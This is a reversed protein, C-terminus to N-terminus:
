NCASSLFEISQRLKTKFVEDKIYPLNAKASELLCTVGSKLLLRGCVIDSAIVPWIKSEVEQAKKIAALATRATDVPLQAAAQLAAQLLVEREKSEKPLKRASVVEEYADGDAPAASKLKDKLDLL